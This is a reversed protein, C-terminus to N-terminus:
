REALKHGPSRGVGRAPGLGGAQEGSCRLARALRGSGEGAQLQRQREHLFMTDLTFLVVAVGNRCSRKYILIPKVARRSCCLLLPRARLHQLVTDLTFLLVAVGNRCSRKYKLIPKVVRPLCGCLLPTRAHVSTDLSEARRRSSVRFLVVWSLATVGDASKVM